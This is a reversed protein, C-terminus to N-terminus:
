WPDWADEDDKRLVQEAGAGPHYHLPFIPLEVPPPAAAKPAQLLRLAHPVVADAANFVRLDGLDARTIGHYVAEPLTLEWIPGQGSSEVRFGFAFDTPSLAATRALGSGLCCVLIGTWTRIM